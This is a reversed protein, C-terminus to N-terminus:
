NNRFPRMRGVARKVSPMSEDLISILVMLRESLKYSWLLYQKDEEKFKPYTSFFTYAYMSLMEHDNPDISEERKVRPDSYDGIHKNIELKLRIFEDALFRIAKEDEKQDYYYTVRATLDNPDANIYETIYFRNIPIIKVLYSGDVLKELEPVIASVGVHQIPPLPLTATESHYAYGFVTKEDHTQEFLQKLHPDTVVTQIAHFPFIVKPTLLIPIIKKFTTGGKVFAAEDDANDDKATLEDGDLILDNM